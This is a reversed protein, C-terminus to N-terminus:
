EIEEGVKLQFRMRAPPKVLLVPLATEQLLRKLVRAHGTM